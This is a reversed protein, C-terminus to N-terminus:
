PTFSSFYLISLFIPSPLAASQSPDTFAFLAEAHSVIGVASTMTVHDAICHCNWRM